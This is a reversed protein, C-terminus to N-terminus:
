PRILRPVIDPAILLAQLTTTYLRQQTRLTALAEPHTDPKLLLYDRGELLQPELQKFARFATGKPTRWRTDIDKLTYFSALQALESSV